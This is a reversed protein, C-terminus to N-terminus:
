IGALEQMSVSAPLQRLNGVAADINEEEPIIGYVYVSGIPHTLSQLFMAPAAGCVIGGGQSKGPVLQLMIWLEFFPEIRRLLPHAAHADADNFYVVRYLLRNKFDMGSQLQSRYSTSTLDAKIVELIM